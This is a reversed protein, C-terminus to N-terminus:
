DDGRLVPPHGSVGSTASPRPTSLAPELIVSSHAVPNSGRSSGATDNPRAPSSAPAAALPGEGPGRSLHRLVVPLTVILMVLAAAGLRLWLLPRGPSARAPGQVPYSVMHYTRMRKSM